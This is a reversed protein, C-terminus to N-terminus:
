IRPAPRRSRRGVRPPACASSSDSCRRWRRQRQRVGVDAVTVPSGVEAAMSTFQADELGCATIWQTFPAPDLDVNLAYGHTTVWRSAHVGISAIKRPGLSRAPPMWVGTLGEYTTAELGFACITRVIAQELDRVYGRLDRGHHNLDLIPYCVLQGPGHYTSKGGRNTEVVEIDIGDPLHLEAAEDTRRGLTVVPEHELLIVTDPQCRGERGGRARAPTRVSRRVSDPRAPRPPDRGERGAPQRRASCGATGRWTRPRTSGCAPRTRDELPRIVTAGAAVAQAHHADVDDVSVFVGDIVWPNDQWRRAAECTERHRKPGEYAANPTALMVVAGDRELEAHTVTGDDSTYRQGERERFGFAQTLWDIAAAADEYAIMPVIRQTM